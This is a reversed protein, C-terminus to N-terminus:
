SEVETLITYTGVDGAFYFPEGLPKWPFFQHSDFGEDEFDVISGNAYRIFANVWPEEADSLASHDGNILASAMFSPGRVKVAELRKTM